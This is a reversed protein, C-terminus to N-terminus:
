KTGRMDIVEVKKYKSPDFVFIADALDLDTKINMLRVTYDVGDKGISSIIEPIETKTNIYLKIRSYPQNLNRPFLDIEHFHVGSIITEGQHLYKFDRNYWMFIKAPNSLFDEDTNDPETIVVENIDSAYTWMTKGDYFVINDASSLKYKDQKILINGESSHKLNEKRDEIVLEFDAQISIFKNIKEVSRDLIERAYPDQAPDDQQSFGTVLPLFLVILYISTRLM